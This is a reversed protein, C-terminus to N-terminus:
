THFSPNSPPSLSKHTLSPLRCMSVRVGRKEKEERKERRERTKRIWKAVKKEMQIIGKEHLTRYGTGKENEWRKGGGRWLRTLVPPKAPLLFPSLTGTGLLSSLSIAHRRCGGAQMTFNPDRGREGREARSEYTTMFACGRFHLFQYSSAMCNQTGM